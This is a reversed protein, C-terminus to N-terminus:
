EFGAFRLPPLALEVGQVDGGAVFDLLLECYDPLLLERPAHGVGDVVVHVANPFGDILEEVNGPPTRADLTGSVFLVPADCAIPGRFDDGLDPDGCARCIASYYGDFADSLLNDDDRAERAIRRMRAGTGGSSCDMMITMASVSPALRNEYALEGFFQHDGNATTLLFMPLNELRVRDALFSGVVRQLDYGGCVVDHTAGDAGRVPVTVPEDDLREILDRLTGRLDPLAASVAPDAAALDHIRDVQAQIQSPLKWTADPGEVKTLVARAVHEGHRRLYALGLHSGYSAGFPIVEDFGLARRVDDIDDASEETNYAELDVGQERWYSVCETIAARDAEIVARKSLPEDFPLVYSTDPGEFLNPVSLGTGRQDVGIVDCHDLLRARRGTAPGVCGEIGSGGPGGALFVIPPGPDPADTEFHVFAIEITADTGAARHEPVTIRGLRGVLPRGDVGMTEYPEWRVQPPDDAVALPAACLAALLTHVSKKWPRSM